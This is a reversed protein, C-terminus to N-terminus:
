CPHGGKGRVMEQAKMLDQPTNVNFFVKEMDAYAKLSAEEVVRVKARSIFDIIKYIGKELCSEIELLCSKGYVAFLPEYRGKVRPVVGDYGPALSALYQALNLDVFPMDCAVVFIYPFHANKLGSHIGTLPTSYPLLDKVVKVGLSTYLAPEKVVIMVEPFISRLKEVQKVILPSGEWEVFAKNRKMRSSQGGALIVGSCQLM